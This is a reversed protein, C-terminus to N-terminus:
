WFIDCSKRIIDLYITQKTYITGPNKKTLKINYIYTYMHEYIGAVDMLYIYIYIYIHIDNDLINTWIYSHICIYIYIYIYM